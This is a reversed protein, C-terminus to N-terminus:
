QRPATASGAATMSIAAHSRSVEDSFVSPTLGLSEVRYDAVRIDPVMASLVARKQERNWYEWGWLPAFAEILDNTDWSLAPTERMLLDKAVRLEHDISSLRQDREARDILGEIFSDMVRQRKNSISNVQATLRQIRAASGNQDQRQAM